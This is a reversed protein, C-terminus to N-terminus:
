FSFDPTFSPNKVEIWSCKPNEIYQKTDDCYVRQYTLCRKLALLLINLTLYNKKQFFRIKLQNFASIKVTMQFNSPSKVLKLLQLSNQLSKDYYELHFM